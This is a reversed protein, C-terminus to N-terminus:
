YATLYEVSINLYMRKVAEDSPDIMRQAFPTGKTMYIYGDDVPLSLFGFEGIRKAIENKKSEVGAWSTSRYWISATLFVSNGLSDDVVSYTIYPYTVDNPVSNEDYAPIEFSSWFQQLKQAKNM